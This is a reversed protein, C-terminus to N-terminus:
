ISRIELLVAICCSTKVIDEVIIPL